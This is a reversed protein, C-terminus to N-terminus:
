KGVSPKVKMFVTDVIPEKKNASEIIGKKTLTHIVRLLGNTPTSSGHPYPEESSHAVEHGGGRWLKVEIGRM